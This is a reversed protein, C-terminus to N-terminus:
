GGKTNKKNSSSFLLGQRSRTLSNFFKQVVRDQKREASLSVPKKRTHVDTENSLRSYLNCLQKVQTSFQLWAVHLAHEVFINSLEFDRKQSEQLTKRSQGLNLWMFSVNYARSAPHSRIIEFNRSRLLREQYLRGNHQQVISSFYPSSNQEQTCDHVHFDYMDIDENKRVYKCSQPKNVDLFEEVMAIHYSKERECTEDVSM